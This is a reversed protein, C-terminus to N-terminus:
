KFIETLSYIDVFFEGLPYEGNHLFYTTLLNERAPWSEKLQNFRGLLLFNILIKAPPIPFFPHLYPTFIRKKFIFPNAM